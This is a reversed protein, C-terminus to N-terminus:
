LRGEFFNRFPDWYPTSAIGIVFTLIALILTAGRIIFGAQEANVEQHEIGIRFFGDGAFPLKTTGLDNSIFQDDTLEFDTLSVEVITENWLGRNFEDLELSEFGTFDFVVPMGVVCVNNWHATNADYQEFAYKNDMEYVFGDFTKRKGQFEFTISGEFSINKFTSHTCAYTVSDDVFNFRFKDISSNLDVDSFWEYGFRFSYKDDGSRGIYSSGDSGIYHTQQFLSSTTPLFFDSGFYGIPFAENIPPDNVGQCFGDKVYVCDMSYPDQAAITNLNSYHSTWNDGGNDLWRTEYSNPLIGTKMSSQYDEDTTSGANSIFAVAFPLIGLLLIIALANFQVPNM